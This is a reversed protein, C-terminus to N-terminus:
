IDTRFCLLNQVSTLLYFFSVCCIGRTCCIHILFITSAVSVFNGTSTLLDALCSADYTAFSPLLQLVLWQSGACCLVYCIWWLTSMNWRPNVVVQRKM